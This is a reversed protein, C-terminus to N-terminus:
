EIERFYIITPIHICFEDGNETITITYNTSCRIKDKITQLTENEADISVGDLLRIRVKKM